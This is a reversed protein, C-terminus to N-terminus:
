VEGSISRTRRCRSLVIASSASISPVTPLIEGVLAILRIKSIISNFDSKNLFDFLNFIEMVLENKTLNRAENCEARARSIVAQTAPPRACNLRLGLHVQSYTRRATPLQRAEWVGGGPRGVCAQTALCSSRHLSTRFSDFLDNPSKQLFRNRIGWNWKERNSGMSRILCFKWCFDFPVMLSTKLGLELSSSLIQRRLASPFTASRRNGFTPDVATSGSSESSTDVRNSNLFTGSDTVWATSCSMASARSTEKSALDAIVEESDDFSFDNLGVMLVSLPPIDNM